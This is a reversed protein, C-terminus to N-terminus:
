TELRLRHHIVIFSIKSSLRCTSIINYTSIRTEGLIIRTLKREPLRGCVIWVRFRSFHLFETSSFVSLLLHKQRSTNSMVRTRSREQPKIVSENEVHPRIILARPTILHKFAHHLRIAPTEMLRLIKWAFKWTVLICDVRVSVGELVSRWRVIFLEKHLSFYGLVSIYTVNQPPFPHRRANWRRSRSREARSLYKEKEMGNKAKEGVASGPGLSDM